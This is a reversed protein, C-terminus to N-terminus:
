SLLLALKTILMEKTFPKMLYENAGADLAHRVHEMENNVTVMMIRTSDFRADARVSQVLQDGSMEPMNWDVLLVDFQEGQNMRSLVAQGRDCTVVEFDPEEALYHSVLLLNTHNDDVALIRTKAM